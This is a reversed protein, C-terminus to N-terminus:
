WGRWSIRARMDDTPRGLKMWATWGGALLVMWVAVVLPLNFPSLGAVAVTWAGLTVLLMGVVKALPYGALSVSSAGSFCRASWGHKCGSEGAVLAGCSPRSLVSCRPATTCGVGTAHVVCHCVCSGVRSCQRRRVAPFGPCGCRWLSSYRGGGLVLLVVPPPLLLSRTM